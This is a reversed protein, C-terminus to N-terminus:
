LSMKSRIKKCIEKQGPEHAKCPSGDEVSTFTGQCDNCVRLHARLETFEPSEPSTSMFYKEIQDYSFCGSPPNDIEKIIKKVLEERRKKGRRKKM